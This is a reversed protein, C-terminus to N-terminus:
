LAAPTYKPLHRDSKRQRMSHRVSAEKIRLVVVALKLFKLIFLCQESIPLQTRKMESKGKFVRTAWRAQLEALLNVAGFGDILGVVALTPSTLGLAFVHRYLRHLPDPGCKGQLDPALFPFSYNYGTAFVVVDVQWVFSLNWDM